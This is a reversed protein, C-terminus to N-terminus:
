LNVKNLKLNSLLTNKRAKKGLYQIFIYQLSLFFVIFVFGIFYKHWDFPFQFTTRRTLLEDGARIFFPIIENAVPYTLIMATLGVVLGLLINRNLMSISISSLLIGVLALLNIFYKSIYSEIPTDDTCLDAYLSQFLNHKEGSVTLTSALMVMTPLYYKFLSVNNTYIMVMPVLIVFVLYFVITGINPINLCISLFNKDAM